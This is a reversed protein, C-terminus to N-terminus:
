ITGIPSNNVLGCKRTQDCGVAVPATWSFLPFLAATSLERREGRHPCNPIRHGAAGVLLTHMKSPKM